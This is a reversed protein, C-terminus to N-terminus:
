NIQRNIRMKPSQEKFMGTGKTTNKIRKCLLKVSYNIQRNIRMVWRKKYRSIEKQSKVKVRQELHQNPNQRFYLAPIEARV